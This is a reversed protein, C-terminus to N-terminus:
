PALDKWFKQAAQMWEGYAEQSSKGSQTKQWIEQCCKLWLDYLEQISKLPKKEHTRKIWQALLMDSADSYFKGVMKWYEQYMKQEHMLQSFQWQQKLSELWKNIQQLHDEPNVFEGKSFMDRLNKEASSIFEKNQKMWFEYWDTNMM